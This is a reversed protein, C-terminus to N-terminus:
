VDQHGRGRSFRSMQGLRNYVEVSSGPQEAELSSLAGRIAELKRSILISNRRHHDRSRTLRERLGAWAPESQLEESPPCLRSLEALLEAKGPQMQEFRDLDQAQLAQFELELLRELEQALLDLRPANSLDTV